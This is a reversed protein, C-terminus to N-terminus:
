GTSPTSVPAPLGRALMPGYVSRVLTLPESTAGQWSRVLHALAKDVAASAYVAEELGTALHVDDPSLYRSSPADHSRTSVSRTSTTLSVTAPSALADLSARRRPEVTLSVSRRRSHFGIGAAAPPSTSAADGGVELQVTM